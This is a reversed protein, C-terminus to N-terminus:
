DDNTPTRSKKIVNRMNEVQQRLEALQQTVQEKVMALMEDPNMTPGKPGAPGRAGVQGRAGTKGTKGTKGQAGAKGRTGSKGQPGREGQAGRKGTRGRLGRHIKRGEGLIQALLGKRRIAWLYDTIGCGDSPEFRRVCVDSTKICSTSHWMATHNKPNERSRM